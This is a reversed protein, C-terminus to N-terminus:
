PSDPIRPVLSRIREPAEWISSWATARDRGAYLTTDVVAWGTGDASFAVLFTDINDPTSAPFGESVHTWTTGGDESRYLRGDVHDGHPGRSVTALLLEPEEAHVAVARGYRAHFGASRHSWSRGRDASVYVGNATNAYVRSPAAPCVAVQHVDKHLEPTVPAWTVGEDTSCMISGVHIDAYVTGDTTRALSRVSPPGGWPTHWDERCELDDFSSVREARADGDTWRFLRAGETGLLVSLPSEALVVLSHVPEEIGHGVRRRDDGALVVLDGGDVVVGGDATAAVCCVQTGAYIREPVVQPQAANLLFVQSVTAILM